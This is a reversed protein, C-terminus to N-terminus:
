KSGLLTKLSVPTFGKAHLEEILTPMAEVTGKHGFHLSIISGNKVRAMTNAIVASKGPDLYDKSDVDYSICRKYGHKLASKQILTTSYQTGSPRFWAGQNGILKKLEHACGLIESDVKKASLAKMQYHHMTHNGIDHGGDIILAALEPNAQLWTGIAFVSVPTTTRRFIKLLAHANAPDGGGHFTLAVLPKSRPGHTIDGTAATASENLEPGILGTAAALAGVQMFLRRSIPMAKPYKWTVSVRENGLVNGQKCRPIAHM